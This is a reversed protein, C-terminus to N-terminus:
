RFVKLKQHHYKGYMQISTNEYHSGSFHAHIDIVSKSIQLSEYTKLIEM